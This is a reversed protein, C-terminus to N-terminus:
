EIAKLAEVMSVKKFKKHVVIMVVIIILKTSM